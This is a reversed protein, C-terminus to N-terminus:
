MKEIEEVKLNTYRSIVESSLGDEKMKRATEKIGEARGEARGEALGKARGEALGEERYEDRLSNEIKRADEEASIYERFDPDENVREIESM